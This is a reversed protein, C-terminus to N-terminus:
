CLKKPNGAASMRHGISVEVSPIDRKSGFCSAVGANAIVAIGRYRDNL